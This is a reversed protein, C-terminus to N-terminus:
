NKKTQCGELKRFLGYRLIDSLEKLTKKCTFTYFFVVALVMLIAEYSDNQM